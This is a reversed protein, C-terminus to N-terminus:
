GGRDARRGARPDDARASGISVFEHPPSRGSDPDWPRSSSADASVGAHTALRPANVRESSPVGDATSAFRAGAACPAWPPAGGFGSRARAASAAYRGPIELHDRTFDRM